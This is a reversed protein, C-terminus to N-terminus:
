NKSMALCARTPDYFIALGYYFYALRQRLPPLVTWSLRVSVIWRVDDYALMALLYTLLCASKCGYRTIQRENHNTWHYCGNFRKVQQSVPIYYYYYYYRCQCGDTMVRRATRILQAIIRGRKTETHAWVCHCCYYLAFSNNLDLSKYDVAWCARERGRKVLGSIYFIQKRIDCQFYETLLRDFHKSNRMVCNSFSKVFYTVDVNRARNLRFM